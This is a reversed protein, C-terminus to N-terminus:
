HGVGRRRGSPPPPPQTPLGFATPAVHKAAELADILGYGYYSDYGPQGLDKASVEIAKVLDAATLSPSLSWLMAAIGSVHPVAMSTGNLFDYDDGRYSEAIPGQRGLVKEGDAFLLSVALPWQYALDADHDACTVDCNRILTWSDRDDLQDTQRGLILVAKAGAAKANRVKENFSLNGRRIVAIAGNVSDPFDAKGAGFGCFVYPGEADGKPSGQLPVAALVEPGTIVDALMATGVPVTSLVNVGPAVIDMRPGRNSFRALTMHDDIAGVAFVGPYRAPYNMGDVGANGGAAVILLGAAAARRFVDEEAASSSNSGLSLNVIWNGGQAHKGLVWDIGAILGEDSGNGNEDLVKVAWLQAAPAVGVVGIGNDAAAITGAV